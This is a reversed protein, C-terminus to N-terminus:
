RRAQGPALPPATVSAAAPRARGRRSGAPGTGPRGAPRPGPGTRAAARRPETLLPSGRQDGLDLPGPQGAAAAGPERGRPLQGGHPRRARARPPRSRCRPRAQWRSPCPGAHGARRVQHQVARHERGLEGAGALGHDHHVAVDAVDDSSTTASRARARRSRTRSSTRVAASPKTAPCALATTCQISRPTGAGVAVGGRSASRPRRPAGVSTCFTSVSAWRASM